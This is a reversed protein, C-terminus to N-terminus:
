VLIASPGNHPKVVKNPIFRVFRHYMANYLSGLAPDSSIKVCSDHCEEVESLMAVASWPSIGSKLMQFTCHMHQFSIHMAGQM